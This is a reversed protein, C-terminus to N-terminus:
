ALLPRGDDRRIAVVAPRPPQGPAPSPWSSGLPVQRRQLFTRGERDVLRHEQELQRGAMRRGHREGPHQVALFLTREDRDLALGCLECEMPGTAFCFATEESGSGRPVLWCSNNGFIEGAPDGISRDTVIWLNGNRDLALNDPNAFGLGGAWPEGGTVALRWRFGDDQDQLRMVWGHPWGAEGAPGTFVAPDAGGRENPRGSTFAVLLDESVPDLDTDEPRATPTGGVASAALHADVLIAGQLAAAAGRYLHALTPFRRRYAAVAADDDFLEAGALRRDSHPLEVPCSLGATQFRSPLFPDVPTEPRLPIWRGSGDGEFRAVQLDGQDLLASNAPDSPDQVVADSVYRYLHGGRRDCGSYIQLHEGAIARVAVAEHRFRGLWSHKCAPRTPDAPDVEVMWGYKNGALGYVNGLGALRTESCLFPRRSPHSASGDAHVDESIQVQVNEEASLVTGWPTVGGACNAFSGIVSAGLGDSYGMPEPLNFVAAAPGSVRLRQAPDRLGALGDIRRELPSTRRRWAGRHRELAIVGVGLDAMAEDSVARILALLPHGEPLATCDAEGQQPKLTDALQQYPLPRGLVAEFGQQWPLPSIYEFNVVLLAREPGDAGDARPGTPEPVLAVYDNNFGFRAGVAPDGVPEGWVALLDARFGAPLVLRDELQVSALRQRQAAAELGDGQM